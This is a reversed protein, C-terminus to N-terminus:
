KVDVYKDETLSSPMIRKYLNTSDSYGSDYCNDPGDVDGNMIAETLKEQAQDYDEGDVIYTKSYCENYTIAFRPM